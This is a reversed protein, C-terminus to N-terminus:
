PTGPAAFDKIYRIAIGSMTIRQWIVLGLISNIGTDVSVSVVDDVSGFKERAKLFLDLWEVGGGGAVGFVFIRVDSVDVHGLIEYKEASPFSKDLIVPSKFSLCGSLFLMPLLLFFPMKM